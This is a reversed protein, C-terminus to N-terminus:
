FPAFALRSPLLLVTLVEDKETEPGSSRINPGSPTDCAAAPYCINYISAIFAFRRLLVSARHSLVPYCLM